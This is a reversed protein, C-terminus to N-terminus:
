AVYWAQMWNMSKSNIKSGSKILTENTEQCHKYLMNIQRLELNFYAVLAIIIRFSNIIFVLSINGKYDIREKHNLVKAMLIAKYREVQGRANRKTKFSIVRCENPM